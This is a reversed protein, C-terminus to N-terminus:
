HLLSKARQILTGAQDLLGVPNPGQKLQQQMYHKLADKMRTQYGPGQARFWALVEAEMLLSIRECKERSIRERRAAAAPRSAAIMASTIRPVESTDIDTIAEARAIQASTPRPLTASTYDQLGM